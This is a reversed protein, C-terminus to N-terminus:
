QIRLSDFISNKKQLWFEYLAIDVSACASGGSPENMDDHM